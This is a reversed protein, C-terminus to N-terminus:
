NKKLIILSERLIGKKITRQELAFRTNLIFINEIEFGIKSALYALIIDSEIIEEVYGNGVVIAAHGNKRLVRHIEELVANMDEFYLRAQIPLNIELLFDSEKTKMGIFARLGPIPEGRIFYEELEYVKTYDINNLYPPSTIVDDISNDDLPIHRSDSMDALIIATGGQKEKQIDKIMNAAIRAFMKRLPPVPRKRIKIVSGDKYAYSCKIAANILVLIFFERIEKDLDLIIKRLFVIDQLAYKSFSKYFLSPFKGKTELEVFRSKELM